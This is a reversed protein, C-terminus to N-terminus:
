DTRWLRQTSLPLKRWGYPKQPRDGYQERMLKAFKGFDSFLEGMDDALVRVSDDSVKQYIVFCGYWCCIEGVEIEEWTCRRGTKLTM